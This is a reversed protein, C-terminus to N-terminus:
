GLFMLMKLVFVAANLCSVTDCYFIGRITGTGRTFCLLIGFFPWNLYKVIFTGNTCM